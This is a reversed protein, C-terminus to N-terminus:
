KTENNKLSVITAKYGLLQGSENRLHESYEFEYYKGKCSFSEKAISRNNNSDYSYRINLDKQELRGEYRLISGGKGEPYFSIMGNTKTHEWNSLSISMQEKGNVLAKYRYSPSQETTTSGPKISVSIMKGSSYLIEMDYAAVKGSTNYSVGKLNVSMGAQPTFYIAPSGNVFGLVLTQGAMATLLGLFPFLGFFIVFCLRMSNKAILNMDIGGKKNTGLMPMFLMIYTLDLESM